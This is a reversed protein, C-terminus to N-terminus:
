EYVGASTAINTGPVHYVYSVKPSPRDAGPKPWMYEVWGEGQKSNAIDMLEVFFLRGNFDKLGILTKGILAPMLPHGILMSSDTEFAFVYSDKWVFPGEKANIQKLAAEKGVKQFLEAAAVTMKICEERTATDSGFAGVSSFSVIALVATIISVLKM